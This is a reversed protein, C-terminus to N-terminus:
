CIVLLIWSVCIIFADSIHLLIVYILLFQRGKPRSYVTNTIQGNSNNHIWWKMWQSYLAGLFCFGIQDVTFISARVLCLPFFTVLLRRPFATQDNVGRTHTPSYETFEFSVKLLHDEIQTWICFFVYERGTCGSNNRVVREYPQVLFIFEMTQGDTTYERLWCISMITHQIRRHYSRFVYISHIRTFIGLKLVWM